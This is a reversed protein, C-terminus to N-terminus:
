AVRDLNNLLLDLIPWYAIAQFSPTPAHVLGNNIVHHFEGNWFVGVHTIPRLEGGFLAKIQTQKTQSGNTRLETLAQNYITNPNNANTVSDPYFGFLLGQGVVPRSVIPRFPNTGKVLRTGGYIDNTGAKPFLFGAGQGAIGYFLEKDDILNFFRWATSQSPIEIGANQLCRIAWGLCFGAGVGYDRYVSANMNARLQTSNLKININGAM